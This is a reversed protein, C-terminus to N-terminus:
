IEREFGFIDLYAVAHPSFKMEPKPLDDSNASM